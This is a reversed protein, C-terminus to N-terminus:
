RAIDGAHALLETLIRFTLGWIIHGDYRWCPFELGPATPVHHTANFEGALARDIPLWFAATAEPGTSITPVTDVAFAYPTVEMGHPGSNNPHLPALRGLFRAVSLDCGLEEITERVATARLDVDTPEHRGGPLSVHGSWPDGVRVARKMLLVRVGLADTHFLAAVAARRRQDIPPPDGPGILLRTTLQDLFDPVSTV